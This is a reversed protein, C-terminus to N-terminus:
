RGLDLPEPWEEHEYRLTDELVERIWASRALGARSCAADIAAVLAPPLAVNVTVRSYGLPSMPRRM